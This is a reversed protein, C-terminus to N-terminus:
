KFPMHLWVPMSKQAFIFYASYIFLFTVLYFADWGCKVQFYFLFKVGLHKSSVLAADSLYFLEPVSASNRNWINGLRTMTTDSPEVELTITKGTL